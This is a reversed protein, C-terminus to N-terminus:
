FNVKEMRAPIEVHIESGSGLMEDIKMGQVVFQNLYYEPGKGKRSAFFKVMLMFTEESIYFDRENITIEEGFAPKTAELESDLPLSEYIGNTCLYYKNGSHDLDLFVLGMQMWRDVLRDKAELSIDNRRAFANIRDLTSKYVSSTYPVPSETSTPAIIRERHTYM